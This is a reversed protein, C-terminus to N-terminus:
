SELAAEPIGPGATIIEPVAAVRRALVAILVIVPIASALTIWGTGLNLGDNRDSALWDTVSAGLPRTVVYAAWFALVANLGAWRWALAPM